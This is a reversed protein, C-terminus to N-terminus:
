EVLKKNFRFATIMWGEGRRALRLDYSGVFVTIRKEAEPRYHVATGYCHVEAADGEITVLHNSSQHHVAAVPALGERWAAVIAGPTLEAPEGGALSTMDFAVRPAFLAGVADWDKRDTMVFLRDVTEVIVMRDALWALRPDHSM